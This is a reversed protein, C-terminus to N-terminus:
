LILRHPRSLLRGSFQMGAHPVTVKLSHSVKANRLQERIGSKCLCNSLQLCCRACFLNMQYEVSRSDLRALCQRFHKTKWHFLHRIWNQQPGHNMSMVLLTPYTSAHISCLISPTVIFAARPRALHVLHMCLTRPRGVCQLGLSIQLTFCIHPRINTKKQVTKNRLANQLEGQHWSNKPM